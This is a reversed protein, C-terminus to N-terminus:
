VAARLRVPRAKRVTGHEDLATIVWALGRAGSPRRGIRRENRRVGIRGDEPDVVVVRRAARLPVLQPNWPDPDTSSCTALSGRHARSTAPVPAVSLNEVEVPASCSARQQPVVSRELSATPMPPGSSSAPRPFRTTQTRREARALELSARRPTGGNAPTPVGPHPPTAGLRPTTGLEVRAQALFACM